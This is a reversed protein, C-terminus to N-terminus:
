YYNYTIIDRTYVVGETKFWELEISLGKQFKGVVTVPRNKGVEKRLAIEHYTLDIEKYGEIYCRVSKEKKDILIVSWENSGEFHTSSVYGTLEVGKGVYAEPSDVVSKLDTTVIVKKGSYKEPNENLSKLDTRVRTGCASLSVSLFLAAVLLAIIKNM